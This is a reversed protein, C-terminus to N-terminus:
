MSQLRRTPQFIKADIYTIINNDLSSFLIM